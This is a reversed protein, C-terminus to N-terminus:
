RSRATKFVHYGLAGLAILGLSLVIKDKNDTIIAPLGFGSMSDDDKYNFERDPVDNAFDSQTQLQDIISQRQITIEDTKEPIYDYYDVMSLNKGSSATIANPYTDLYFLEMSSRLTLVNRLCKLGETAITLLGLRETVSLQINKLKNNAKKIISKIREKLYDDSVGKVESTTLIRDELKLTNYHDFESRTM